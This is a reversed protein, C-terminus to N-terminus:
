RWTSKWGVSSVLSIVQIVANNNLIYALDNIYFLFFLPALVSGQPLGQTFHPSSSFVNFLQVHGRPDNLFSRTWRIFTPPVGTNLMHLLLKERWVKSFDLLTLVSHKMLRQQFGDEIAQVIQTIQDECSWGKCFSAQFRSFMNNTEAIYYLCYANKFM